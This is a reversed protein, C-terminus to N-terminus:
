IQGGVIEAGFAANFVIYISVIPLFSLFLVRASPVLFQYYDCSDEEMLIKDTMTTLLCKGVM